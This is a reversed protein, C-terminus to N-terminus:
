ENIYLYSMSRNGMYTYIIKYAQGQYMYISKVKANSWRGSKLISTDNQDHYFCGTIFLYCVCQLDKKKKFFFWVCFISCMYMKEAHQKIIGTPIGVRKTDKKM